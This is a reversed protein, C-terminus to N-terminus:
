KQIDLFYSDLFSKPYMIIQGTYVRNSVHKKDIKVRKSSANLYVQKGLASGAARGLYDYLSMMQEM